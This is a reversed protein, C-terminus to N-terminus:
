FHRAASAFNPFVPIDRLPDVALSRSRADSAGSSSESRANAAARRGKGGSGETLSYLGYKLLARTPRVTSGDALFRSIGAVRLHTVRARDATAAACTTQRLLPMGKRMEGARRRRRVSCRERRERGERM